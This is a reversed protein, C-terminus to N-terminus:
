KLLFYSFIYTKSAQWHGASIFNDNEWHGECVIGGNCDRYSGV